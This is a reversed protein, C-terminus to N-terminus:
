IVNFREFAAEQIEEHSVELPVKIETEFSKRFVSELPSYIEPRNNKGLTEQTHRLLEKADFSGDYDCVLFSFSAKGWDIIVPLNNEVVINYTHLDTHFIGYKGLYAINKGLAEYIPFLKAPKPKNTLVEGLRRGEAKQMFVGPSQVEIIRPAIGKDSFHILYPIVEESVMDWITDNKDQTAM